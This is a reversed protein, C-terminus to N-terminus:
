KIEVICRFGLWKEPKTYVQISDIHCKSAYLLYNGGISKGENLTMESVNGFLDYIGYSNPDFSAVPKLSIGNDGWNEYNLAGPTLRYNFTACKKKQNCLSDIIGKLKDNESYGAKVIEKREELTPLRYIVTGKGVLKTKWECFDIVQKYTLGTIPYNGYPCRKVKNNKYFGDQSTLDPCRTLVKPLPQGTYISANFEIDDAGLLQASIIYFWIVPLVATRDPLVKKAEEKGKNIYVWNYYSLWSDVTVSTQDVWYLNSCKNMCILQDKSQSYSKLSSVFLIILGFKCLFSLFTTEKM